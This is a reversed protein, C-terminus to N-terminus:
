PTELEKDLLAQNVGLATVLEKRALDPEGLALYTDARTLLLSARTVTASESLALGRQTWELAEMPVGDLLALRAARDALDQRALLVTDRPGVGSREFARALAERASGRNMRQAEHAMADDALRHARELERAYPLAPSEPPSERPACAWLLLASAILVYCRSM